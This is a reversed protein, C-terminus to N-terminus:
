CLVQVVCRGLVTEQAFKAAAASAAEVVALHVPRCAWPDGEREVTADVSAATEALVPSAAEVTVIRVEM